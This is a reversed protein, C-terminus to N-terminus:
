DVQPLRHRWSGQMPIAKPVPGSRSARDRVIEPARVHAAPMAGVGEPAANGEPGANGEPDAIVTM